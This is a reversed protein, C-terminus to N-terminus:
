SLGTRGHSGRVILRAYEQEAMRGLENFTNNM